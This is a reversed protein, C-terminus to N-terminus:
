SHWYYLLPEVFEWPALHASHTVYYVRRDCEHFRTKDRKRVRRAPQRAVSVVELYVSSRSERYCRLHLRCWLVRYHRCLKVVDEMLELGSNATLAHMESKVSGTSM